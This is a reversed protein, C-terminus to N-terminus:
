LIFDGSAVIYNLQVLGCDDCVVVELPFSEQKRELQEKFLFQDAPPTRGLDLFKHLRAGHCMGCASIYMETTRDLTVNPVDHVYRRRWFRSVEMRVARLIQGMGFEAAYRRVSGAGAAGYLAHLIRCQGSRGVLRGNYLRQPLLRRSVSQTRKAADVPLRFRFRPYTRGPMDHGCIWFLRATPRIFLLVSSRTLLRAVFIPRLESLSPTEMVFETLELGQESRLTVATITASTSREGSRRLSLKASSLSDQLYASVTESSPGDKSVQGGSLLIARSCVDRIVGLNHSVLM